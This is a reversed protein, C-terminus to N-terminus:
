VIYGLVFYIEEPAVFKRSPNILSYVILNLGAPCIENHAHLNM